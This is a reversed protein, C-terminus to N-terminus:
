YGYGKDGKKGFGKGGGGGSFSAGGTGGSIDMALSKGKMEDWQESYYVQDGEVLNQGDTINNRHAFLDEGGDDQMVFGFGKVDNFFKVTGTKSGGGGSPRSPPMGGFSKGGGKGGKFGGDGGKGGKKGFGKGGGGGGGGSMSAGGTGGTISMAMSKGKVDDWSESYYVQDGEVLTQGYAVNNAHAFLDEGGDDQVIFGFGKMDNFFKVTGTKSMAHSSAPSRRCNACFHDFIAQAL